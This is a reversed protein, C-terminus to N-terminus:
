FDEIQTTPIAMDVLMVPIDDDIRYITKRDTTILGEALPKDITSGDAYNICGVEILSNLRKLDEATIMRIPTKSSPCCLIDLLEQSVPM